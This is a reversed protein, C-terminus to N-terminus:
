NILSHLLLPISMSLALLRTSYIREEMNCGSCLSLDSEPAPHEPLTSQPPITEALPPSGSARLTASHTPTHAIKAQPRNCFPRPCCVNRAEPQVVSCSTLCTLSASPNTATAYIQSHTGSPAGDDGINRTSFSVSKKNKSVWALFIKAALGASRLVLLALSRVIPFQHFYYPQRGQM